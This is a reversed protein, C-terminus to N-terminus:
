RIDALFKRERMLVFFGTMQLAARGHTEVVYFFPIGAFSIDRKFIAAVPNYDRHVDPSGSKRLVM